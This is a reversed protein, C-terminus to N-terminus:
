QAPPQQGPEEKRFEFTVGPRDGTDIQLFGTKRFGRGECDEAGEIEFIQARTCFNFAGSWPKDQADGGREAFAYVFRESLRDRIVKECQGPQLHWWGKSVKKGQTEQALAAWVADPTRNCFTLGLLAQANKAADHLKNYTTAADATAPIDYATRAAALAEALKPSQSGDIEGQYQGLDSLLRQYGAIRAQELTKFTGNESLTTTWGPKGGTDVKAFGQAELGPGCTDSGDSTAEFQLKGICLTQTGGWTRIPGSHAFSTRAFTYYAQQSLKGKIVTTCQGAPVPWWGRTAWFGSSQRIGVSVQLEYSTLNCFRYDTDHKATLMSEPSGATPISVIKAGHSRPKAPKEPKEQAPQAATSTSAGPKIPLLVPRAPEGAAPTQEDPQAWAVSTACVIGAVTARLASSLTM